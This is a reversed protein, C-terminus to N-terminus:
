ERGDEQSLRKSRLKWAERLDKLDKVGDENGRRRWCGFSKAVARTQKLLALRERLADAIFRGRRRLPVMERLDRLLEDELNLNM